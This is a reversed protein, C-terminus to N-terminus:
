DDSDDDADSDDDDDDDSEALGAVVDIRHVIREGITTQDAVDFGQDELFMRRRRVAYGRIVSMAFLLLVILVVAALWGFGRMINAALVANFELFWGVFVLFAQYLFTGAASAALFHSFRMKAAGAIPPIFSKAGVAFRAAFTTLVGHQSFYGVTDEIYGADVTVWRELSTDEFRGNWAHIFQRLGDFGVKRGVAYGTVVGLLSGLWAALFVWWIPHQASAAVFAGAVVTVEGPVILGVFPVSEIASLVYTAIVGWPVMVSVLWEYIPEVPELLPINM